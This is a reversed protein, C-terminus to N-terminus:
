QCMFDAPIWNPSCDYSSGPSIVVPDQINKGISIHVIPGDSQAISQGSPYLINTELNISQLHILDLFWTDGGVSAKFTDGFGGGESSNVPYNKAILQWQVNQEDIKPLIISQNNTYVDIANARRGQGVPTCPCGFGYGESCHGNERYSPYSIKGSAPCSAIYTDEPPLVASETITGPSFLSGTQNVDSFLFYFIIAGVIIAVYKAIKLGAKIIDPAMLAAAVPAGVGTAALGAKAGLGAATKAGLGLGKLIGKSAKPFTKKLFNGASIKAKSMSNKLGEKVSSPLRVSPLHFSPGSASSSGSPASDSMPISTITPIIIPPTIASIPQPNYVKLPEGNVDKLGSTEPVIIVPTEVVKEETKEAPKQEETQTQEQKEKDEKIKNEEAIKQDTHGSGGSIKTIIEEKKKKDGASLKSNDDPMKDLEQLLKLEQPTLPLSYKGNKIDTLNKALVSYGRPDKYFSTFLEEYKEPSNGVKREFPYYKPTTVAIIHVYTRLLQGKYTVKPVTVLRNFVKKFESDTNYLSVLDKTNQLLKASFQNQENM